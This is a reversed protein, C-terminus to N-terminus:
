SFSGPPCTKLRMSLPNDRFDRRSIQANKALYRSGGLGNTYDQARPQEGPLVYGEVQKRSLLLRTVARWCAHAIKRTRERLFLRGTVIDSLSPTM